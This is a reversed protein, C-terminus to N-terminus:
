DRQDILLKIKNAVNIAAAAEEKVADRKNNLNFIKMNMKIEIDEAKKTAAEAVALCDKELKELQSITKTFTSLIKNFKKM